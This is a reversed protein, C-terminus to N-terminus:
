RGTATRLFRRRNFDPNTSALANAITNAIFARSAGCLSCEEEGNPEVPDSFDMTNIAKAILVFDEDTM